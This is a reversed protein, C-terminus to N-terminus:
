GGIRGMWPAPKTHDGARFDLEGRLAPKKHECHQVFTAGFNRLAGFRDFRADTVKFSGDLVDCGRGDGTVELGPASGRFADRQAGKYTTGATLIDGSAPSFDGTWFTNSSTDFSVHERSGGAAITADRPTYLWDRGQGIFDGPDSHLAMRTKGGWNFGQLSAGYRRGSSDVVRLKARKTGAGAHFRLWVECADGAHLTHARCEDLRIPFAKRGKGVVGTHKIHTTRGVQITVPVATAAVGREGEPWRVIAPMTARRGENVRVEGFLAPVAGECHQEYVIWLRKIAGSRRTAIDRVQFRGTTNNCGRSNGSIDLGPRGSGQFPARQAFDYVGRHLSKGPPAAFWFSWYEGTASNVYIKPEKRDGSVSISSNRPTFLRQEGAGVFDHTDSFVAVSTRAAHAAPAAILVLAASVAGM